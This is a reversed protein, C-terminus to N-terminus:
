ILKPWSVSDGIRLRCDSCIQFGLLPPLSTLTGSLSLKGKAVKLAVVRYFSSLHPRFFLSLHPRFFLSLHPRFFLSFVCCFVETVVALVM